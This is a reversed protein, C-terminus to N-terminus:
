APSDSVNRNTTVLSAFVAPATDSLASHPRFHNYDQGWNELKQRADDFSMFWTVNLCEDRLSSNFSEILANDTPKGPRSFDLAVANGYAWEDLVLFVFEPGNDAQIRTPFAQRQEVVHMLTQVVNAGTLSQGGELALCEHTFNDVLTLIRFCRGDFLADSVFDM